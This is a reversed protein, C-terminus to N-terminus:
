HYSIGQYMTMTIELIDFDPEACPAEYAAWNIESDVEKGEVRDMGLFLLLHSCYTTNEAM